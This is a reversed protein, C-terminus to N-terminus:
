ACQAAPRHLKSYRELKSYLAALKARHSGGLTMEYSLAELCDEMNYYDFKLRVKDGEGRAKELVEQLGPELYLIRELLACEEWTLLFSVSSQKM